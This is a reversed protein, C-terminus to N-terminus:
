PEIPKFLIAFPPM